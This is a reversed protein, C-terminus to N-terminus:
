AAERLQPGNQPRNAPAPRNMSSPAMLPAFSSKPVYHILQKVPNEGLEAVFHAIGHQLHEFEIGPLIQDSHKWITNIAYAWMAVWKKDLGSRKLRDIVHYLFTQAADHESATHWAPLFVDRLLGDQHSLETFSEVQSVRSSIAEWADRLREVESSWGMLIPLGLQGLYAFTEAQPERQLSEGEDKPVFWHGLEHAILGFFSDGRPYGKVVDSCSFEGSANATADPIEQLLAMSEMISFSGIFSIARINAGAARLGDTMVIWVALAYCKLQENRWAEGKGLLASTAHERDRELLERSVRIMERSPHGPGKLGYAYLRVELPLVPNEFVNTLSREYTGQMLSEILPRTVEFNDLHSALTELLRTAGSVSEKDHVKAIRANRRQVRTRDDQYRQEIRARDALRRM